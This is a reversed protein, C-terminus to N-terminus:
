SGLAFESRVTGHLCSCVLPWPARTVTEDQVDIAM